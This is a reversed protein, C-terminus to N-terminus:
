LAFPQTVTYEAWPFLQLYGDFLDHHDAFYGEAQKYTDWIGIVEDTAADYVCWSNNDM